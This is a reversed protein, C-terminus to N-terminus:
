ARMRLSVVQLMRLQSLQAVTRNFLHERRAADLPLNAVRAIEKVAGSLVREAKEIARDYEQAKDKAAEPDGDTGPQRRLEEVAAILRPADESSIPILEGAYSLGKENVSGAIRRYDDASIGTAQALRFYQPGFEELRRIIKDVTPQSMGLRQKCFETWKLGLERYTKQDRMQRLCEADAASCGGAITAFAQQRGIWTGLELLGAKKQVPM